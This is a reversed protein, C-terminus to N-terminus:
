ECRRGLPLVVEEDGHRRTLQACTCDGGCEPAALTFRYAVAEGEPTWPGLSITESSTDVKLPEGTWDHGTGRGYILLDGDNTLQLETCPMSELTYSDTAALAENIVLRGETECSELEVTSALVIRVDVVNSRYDWIARAMVASSGGAGGASPGADFCSATHPTGCALGVLIGTLGCLIRTLRARTMWSSTDIWAKQRTSRM